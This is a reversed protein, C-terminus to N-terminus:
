LQANCVMTKPEETKSAKDDQGTIKTIEITRLFFYTLTNFLAIKELNIISVHVHGIKLFFSILRYLIRFYAPGLCIELM